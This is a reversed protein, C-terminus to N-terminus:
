RPRRLQAIVTQEADADSLTIPEGRAFRYAAWPDNRQSSIYSDFSYSSHVHLDGFLPLRNPTAHDCPARSESREFAQASVGLLGAFLLTLRLASRFCNM